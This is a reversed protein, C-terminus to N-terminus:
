SSRIGCPCVDTEPRSDDDVVVDVVRGIGM